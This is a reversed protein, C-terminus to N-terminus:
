QQPKSGRKYFLRINLINYNMQCNLLFKKPVKSGNIKLLNKKLLLLVLLNGYKRNGYLMHKRNEAEM